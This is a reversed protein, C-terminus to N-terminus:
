SCCYGDNMQTAYHIPREYRGSEDRYITIFKGDKVIRATQNYNINLGLPYYEILCESELAENLTNFWNM